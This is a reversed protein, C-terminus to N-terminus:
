HNATCNVNWVIRDMRPGVDEQTVLRHGKLECPDVREPHESFGPLPKMHYGLKEICMGIFVDEIHFFPILSSIEYIKRAVQYSTIYGSGSCYEPYYRRPYYEFSVYWKDHKNRRPNSKKYCKGVVGNLLHIFKNRVINLANPVNVFSDDDTKMVAKAASCRTSAWRFGMITKYTLNNYSDVFDGQIIDSFTRSELLINHRLTDNHVEGLLFAYRVNETNKRYNSLWTNRLTNRAFSHGPASHILIMMEIATTKDSLACIDPNDLIIETRHTSCNVCKDILSISEKQLSSHNDNANGINIGPLTRTQHIKLGKQHINRLTGNIKRLSDDIHKDSLLKVNGSKRIHLNLGSSTYILLFQIFCM